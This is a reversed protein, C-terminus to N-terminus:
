NLKFLIPNFISQFIPRAKKLFILIFVESDYIIRSNEEIESSVIRFYFIPHPRAM